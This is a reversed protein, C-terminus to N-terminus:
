RIKAIAAAISKDAATVNFCHPKITKDFVAQAVRIGAAEMRARIVADDAAQIERYETLQKSLKGRWNRSRDVQPMRPDGTGWVGEGEGLELDWVHNSKIAVVSQATRKPIVDAIPLDKFTGVVLTPGSKAIRAVARAAGYPEETRAIHQADAPLIDIDNTGISYVRMGDDALRSNSIARGLTDVLMKRALVIERPENAMEVDTHVVLNVDLPRDPFRETVQHQGTIATTLSLLDVDSVDHAMFDFPVEGAVAGSHGIALQAAYHGGASGARNAALEAFADQTRHLLM